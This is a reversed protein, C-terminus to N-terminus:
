TVTQEVWSERDTALVLELIRDLYLGRRGLDAIRNTEVNNGM